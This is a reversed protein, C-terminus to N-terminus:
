IIYHLSTNSPKRLVTGPTENGVWLFHQFIRWILGVYETHTVQKQAAIEWKMACWARTTYCM